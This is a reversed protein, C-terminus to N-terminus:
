GKAENKKELKAQRRREKIRKQSESNCVVCYREIKFGTRKRKIQGTLLHGLPCHTKVRNNEGQLSM